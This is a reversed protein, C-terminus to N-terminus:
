SDLPAECGEDRLKCGRCQDGSWVSVFLEQVRDILDEDESVFGLEFNRRGEGKAGIRKLPTGLRRPSHVTEGDRNVKACAFGATYPQGPDGQIRAIRGDEVRVLLSCMDPCDHACVARVTAM